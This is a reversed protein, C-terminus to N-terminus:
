PNRKMKKDKRQLKYHREKRFTPAVVTLEAAARRHRLWPLLIALGGFRSLEKHVSL